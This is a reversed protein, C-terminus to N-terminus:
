EVRYYDGLMSRWRALNQVNHLSTLLINWFSFFVGMKLFFFQPWFSFFVGM